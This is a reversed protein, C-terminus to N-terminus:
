FEKRLGLTVRSRDLNDNGSVKSVDAFAMWGNTGVWSISLGANVVSRDMKDDALTYSRRAPDLLYSAAVASPDDDLERQFEVRLQPVLVGGGVSVVHSVRLGAHAVLSDKKVSSFRMALGSSSLDTEDYGDVKASTQTIGAFPGFSTAGRSFDYGLNGAFWLTSGNADGRVRVNTQPVVRASEQFVSNRRYTGDLSEYGAGLEAYGGEGLTWSAFATLFTSNSDSDGAREAPVFNRGPAEAAFDYEVREVGALLGWVFRDSLRRDFGVEFARSDGEVPRTGAALEAAGVKREFSSGKLNILLSYPGIDVKVSSDAPTAGSDDRMKETRERVEKSRAKAVEVPALTHAVNQSPNLSSESDGSLNGLGGTTENCRTTLTGSSGSCVTFFFTQFNANAAQSETALGTMAVVVATLIMTSSAKM